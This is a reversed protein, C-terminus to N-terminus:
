SPRPFSAVLVYLCMLSVVVAAVLTLTQSALMSLRFFRVGFLLPSFVAAFWAFTTLFFITHRIAASHELATSYLKPSLSNLQWIWQFSLISALLGPASVTGVLQGVPRGVQAVLLATPIAAALGAIAAGRLVQKM